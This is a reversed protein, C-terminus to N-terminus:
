NGSRKWLWYTGGLVFLGVGACLAIYANSTGPAPALTEDPPVVAGHEAFPSPMVPMFGPDPSPVEPQRFIQLPGEDSVLYSLAPDALVDRLERLEGDVLCQSFVCRCIQSYDVHSPGHKSWPGQIVRFHLEPSHNWSVCPEWAKGDFTPANFHWGYNVAMGPHALLRNTVCWYKGVTDVIAGSGPVYGPLKALKASVRGSHAIMAENTSVPDSPSPTVVFTAAHHVLDAIKPTLLMCGTLDAIQQNLIADVNVRVGDVKLADAFVAIEVTHGQETWAFRAFEAEFRGERVAALIYQNRAGVSAPFSM